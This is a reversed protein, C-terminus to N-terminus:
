RWRLMAKEILQTCYTSSRCFIQLFCHPQWTLV